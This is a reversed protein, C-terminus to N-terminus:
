DIIHLLLVLLVCMLTNYISTHTKNDSNNHISEKVSINGIFKYSYWCFVRLVKQYAGDGENIKHEDSFMVAVPKPCFHEVDTRASSACHLPLLNRLIQNRDVDRAYLVGRLAHEMDRSVVALHVFYQIYSQDLWTVAKLM